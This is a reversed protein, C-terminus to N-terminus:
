NNLMDERIEFEYGDNLVRPSIGYEIVLMVRSKNKPVDGKHFGFTDEFIITGAEGTFTHIKNKYNEEMTKDDIRQPYLLSFIRSKHSTSVFKHPGSLIDVNTLYIFVKFFKKYDCDYHYFQANDKQEQISSKTPNSIYCYSNITIKKTNLYGQALNLFFSSQALDSLTNKHNQDFDITLHSIGQSHSIKIIEDMSLSDQISSIKKSSNNLFNENKLRYHMKSLIFNHILKQTLKKDIKTKFYGENDLNKIIQSLSVKKEFFKDSSFDFNINSKNLNRIFPIAYFFRIIFIEFKSTKKINENTKISAVEISSMFHRKLYKTNKYIIKLLNPLM